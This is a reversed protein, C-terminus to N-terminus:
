YRVNIRTFSVKFPRVIAFLREVSFGLVLLSELNQASQQLYLFAYEPGSDYPIVNDGLSIMLIVLDNIALAAIYIASSNQRRRLWVIASLINGPIGLVIGLWKIVPRILFINFESM